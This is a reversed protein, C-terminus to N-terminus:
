SPVDLHVRFASRSSSRMDTLRGLSQDLQVVTNTQVDGRLIVQQLGPPLLTLPDTPGMRLAQDFEPQTLLRSGRAV